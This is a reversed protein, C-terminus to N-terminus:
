LGRRLLSTKLCLLVYIKAHVSPCLCNTGIGTNFLKAEQRGVGGRVSLAGFQGRVPTEYPIKKREVEAGETELTFGGERWGAGQEAVVKKPQHQWTIGPAQTSRQARCTGGPDWYWPSPLSGGAALTERRGVCKIASTVYGPASPMRLRDGAPVPALGGSLLAWPRCKRAKLYTQRLTVRLQALVRISDRGSRGSSAARCWPFARRM